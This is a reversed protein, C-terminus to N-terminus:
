SSLTSRRAISPVQDADSSGTASRQVMQALLRRYALSLRDARAHVEVTLDLHLDRRDFSELVVLDEDLVRDEFALMDAIKREDGAFDNRAMVKFIRTSGATEPQMAYLISFVQDTLPFTLRMFVCHAGIVTKSVVHPQVTPHEGTLTLPDDENLYWTTYATSATFGDVTVASPPVEASEPVGFTSVHVTAFHSADVFNDVLQAAGASTRRPVAMIRDFGDMDWEPLSPVDTVPADLALWVLGLHEAVAYPSELRARSPIPTGPGASPVRVCGGDAGFEWGHYRCQLVGAQVCGLSLPALRHPCRDRSALITHESLRVVVWAEGFLEVRLPQATVEESLAVAVWSSRLETTCNDVALLASPAGGRQVHHTEM